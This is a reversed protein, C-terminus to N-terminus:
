EYLVLGESIWLAIVNMSFKRANEVNYCRTNVKEIHGDKFCYVATYILTDDTELYWCALNNM